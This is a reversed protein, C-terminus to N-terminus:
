ESWPDDWTQHRRFHELRKRYAPNPSVKIADEVSRIATEWDGSRAAVVALTDLANAKADPLAVRVSEEALFRAFEKAAKDAGPDCGIYWALSNKAEGFTVKEGTKDNPIQLDPHTTFWRELAKLSEITVSLNRAGEALTFREVLRVGTQMVDERAGAGGAEQVTAPAPKPADVAPVPPTGPFLGFAAGLAALGGGIGALAWPSQVRMAAPTFAAPRAGPEVTTPVTSGSERRTGPQSASTQRAGEKKTRTAQMLSKVFEDCSQYRKAPEHHLAMRLVKAEAPTVASLDYEGTRKAHDIQRVLPHGDPGYPYPLRGTRLQVYVVALSYQDSTAATDGYLMEPAAWPRSAYVERTHSDQIRALGLDCLQVTSAVLLINQPKIDCHQIPQADSGPRKRPDNLYDIARAAQMMWELVVKTPLGEGGAEKLRSDLTGDGLGMAMVLELSAGTSSLSATPAKTLNHEFVDAEDTSLVHGDRNKLWVGHLPVIHPHRILKIRQLSRYEKLGTSSDLDALVKIAVETGGPGRAKWVEGFGGKGLRNLLRYGPLVEDHEQYPYTPNPRRPPPPSPLVPEGGVPPQAAGRGVPITDASSQRPIPVTVPAAPVPVTVDAEPVPLPPAAGPTIPLTAGGPGCAQTADAAPATVPPPVPEPDARTTDGGRGIPTTAESARTGPGVQAAVEPRPTDEARTAGSEPTAKDPDHPHEM